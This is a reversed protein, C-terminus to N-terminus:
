FLRGAAVLGESTLADKTVVEAQVYKMAIAHNQQEQRRLYDELGRPCGPGRMWIAINALIQHFSGPCLLGNPMESVQDEAQQDFLSNM